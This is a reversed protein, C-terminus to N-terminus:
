CPAAPESASFRFMWVRASDRHRGIAAFGEALEIAIAENQWHSEGSRELYGKLPEDLFRLRRLSKDADIVRDLLLSVIIVILNM